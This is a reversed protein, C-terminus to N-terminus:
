LLSYSKLPRVRERERERWQDSCLLVAHGQARARVERVNFADIHDSGGDPRLETWFFFGPASREDVAKTSLLWLFFFFFHQLWEWRQENHQQQQQQQMGGEVRWEEVRRRGGQLRTHRRKGVAGQDPLSKALAEWVACVSGLLLLRCIYDAPMRAAVHRTAARRGHIWSIRGCM